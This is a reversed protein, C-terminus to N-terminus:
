ESGYVEFDINPVPKFCYTFDLTEYVDDTLDFYNGPEDGIWIPDYYAM